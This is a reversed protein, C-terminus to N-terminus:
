TISKSYLHFFYARLFCHGRVTGDNDNDAAAFVCSLVAGSVLGHAATGDYPGGDAISHGQGSNSLSSSSSLHWDVGSVLGAEVMADGFEELSLRGKTQIALYGVVNRFSCLILFLCLICFYSLM